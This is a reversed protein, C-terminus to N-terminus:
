QKVPEIGWCQASRGNEPIAAPNYKCKNITDLAVNYHQVLPDAISAIQEDTVTQDPTNCDPGMHAPDSHLIGGVTDFRFVKDDGAASSIARYLAKSATPYSTSIVNGADDTSNVIKDAECSVIPLAAFVVRGKLYERAVYTFLDSRFQSVKALRESSDIFGTMDDFAFNVLVWESINVKANVIQDVTPAIDGGEAMVLQHLATGDIVGPFVGIDAGRAKFANQLASITSQADSVPSVPASAASSPDAVAAMMRAGKPTVLAGGSYTLKIAPGSSAPSGDDGGGCASISICLPLALLALIKKM